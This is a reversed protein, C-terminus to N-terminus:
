RAVRGRARCCSRSGCLLCKWLRSGSFKGSSTCPHGIFAGHLTQDRAPLLLMTTAHLRQQLQLLLGLRRNLHAPNFQKRHEAQLRKHSAHVQQKCLQSQQQLLSDRSRNDGCWLVHHLLIPDRQECTHTQGEKPLRVTGCWQRDSLFRQWWSYQM